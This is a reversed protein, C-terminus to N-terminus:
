RASVRSAVMYFLRPAFNRLYILITGRGIYVEKRNREIARIYRRACEDAPMGKALGPDMSRQATGDAQLAHLSIDTRIQGPCVMTVRLGKDHNELYLSEFFGHLAHKSASYASRLPFGFKGVVSSTAAIHGGGNEIMHRGVAKALEIQGFYNVDMFKRDIEIDTELALARQSIGAHLILVDIRSAKELAERFAMQISESRTIDLPIAHATAGSERCGSAVKELAELRRASVVVTAGKRASEYALQEGIGASAGIIWVTKDKIRM